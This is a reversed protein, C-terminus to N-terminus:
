LGSIHTTYLNIKLFNLVLYHPKITELRAFLRQEATPSTRTPLVGSQIILDAGPHSANTVTKEKRVYM